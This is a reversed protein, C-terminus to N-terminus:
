ADIEKAVIVSDRESLNSTLLQSLQSPDENVYYSSYRFGPIFFAVLVLLALTVLAGM